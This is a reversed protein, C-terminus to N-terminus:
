VGCVVDRYYAAFRRDEAVVHNFFWDKIPHLEAPSMTAESSTALSRRLDVLEALQLRHDRTHDEMHPYAIERLFRQEVLFHGRLMTILDGLRLSLPAPDTADGLRNILRVMERHEADLMDIDLLWEDRWTLIENM